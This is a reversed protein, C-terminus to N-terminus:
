KKKFLFLIIIGQENCLVVNQNKGVGTMSQVRHLPLMLQTKVGEAEIRDKGAM